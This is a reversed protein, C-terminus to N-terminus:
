FASSRVLAGAIIEFARQAFSKPEGEIQAVGRIVQDSMPSESVPALTLRYVSTEPILNGAENQRVAVGGGYVSALYPMDLHSVNAQSIAVVRTDMSAATLQDPVFRASQSPLIRGLDSERVVGQVVVDGPDIIYAIPLTKNIWRGPHLSESLEVITGDIPSRITLQEKLDQLASLQSLNEQARRLLVLSDELEDASAAVRQLRFTLVNGRIRTMRLEEELSPSELVLLSQGASVQDGVSIQVSAIRGPAPAFITTKTKPEVIMPVGISSRWPTFVLLLLILGVSGLVAGRRLGIRGSQKRWFTIEKMIPLMIFTYLVGLFLVLGLLKFFFTYVVSAIAALLFFRYVWTSWAYGVLFRQMSRTHREPPADKLGLLLARLKWKGMAFARDQLNEMGLADAMFYYGDFRLFPNMNILVTLTISVTGLVFVVSRSIGDPLLTWLFLCILALYFETLIGAASVYLRKKRSTLRYVDTTDTYLVPFFVLFAVGMSAVRCGFRTATLAHGLEHCIKVFVIGLAFYFVGERSFFYIFTTSFTEWQRSILFASLIGIALLVNRLSSSFLPDLYRIVRQFFADPHLLPIRLFLYNQFLWKLRDPRSANHQVTYDQSQGSASALTLNSAHLFAILQRVDNLEIPCTTESQVLKVLQTATGARWRSLLEFAVWSLRFYKHRIPDFIAWSPSGNLAEPGPLLQIDERLVPLALNAPDDRTTISTTTTSLATKSVTTM